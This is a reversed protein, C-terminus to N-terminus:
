DKRAQELAAAWKRMVPAPHVNHTPSINDAEDRLEKAIQGMVVRLREIKAGMEAQNERAYLDSRRAEARLREVKAEHNYSEAEMATAQKAHAEDALEHLNIGKFVNRQWNALADRESQLREIETAAEKREANTQEANRHYMVPVRLREVLDSMM